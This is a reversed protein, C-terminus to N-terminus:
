KAFLPDSQGVIEFSLDIFLDIALRGTGEENM